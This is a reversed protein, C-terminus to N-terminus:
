PQHPVLLPVGPSVDPGSLGNLAEIRQVVAEPDSGPAHRAAVDWLTDGPAVTVLATREPVREAGAGSVGEALLGLGIVLGAVALALLVLWPWRRPEPRAPCSAVPAPVRGAVVRARTPPRTAEGRRRRGPRHPAAVEGPVTRARRVQGAERYLLVSM